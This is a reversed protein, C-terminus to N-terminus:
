DSFILRNEATVPCSYWEKAPWLAAGQSYASYPCFSPFSPRQAPASIDVPGVNHTFFPTRRVPVRQIQTAGRLVQHERGLIM